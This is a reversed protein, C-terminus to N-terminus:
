KKGKAAGYVAQWQKVGENCSKEIWPAKGDKWAPPMQGGHRAAWAENRPNQYAGPVYLKGTRLLLYEAWAAAAENVVVEAHWAAPLWMLAAPGFKLNEWNRVEVRMRRMFDHLSIKHVQEHVSYVKVGYPQLAKMIIPRSPMCYPKAFTLTTTGAQKKPQRRASGARQRGRDDFLWDFM